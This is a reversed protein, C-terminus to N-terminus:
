AEIDKWRADGMLTVRRSDDDALTISLALSVPLRYSGLREPWEILTVGTLADDFGLEILASEHEIRYLDYHYLECAAGGALTVPYTQLLTFTPSTVEVAQPSLAQILFQAFTTKGAGLDGTLTLVDGVRVKVALREALAQTDALSSLSIVSM